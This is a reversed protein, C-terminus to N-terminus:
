PPFTLTSPEAVYVGSVLLGLGVVVLLLGRGWRSARGHRPAPTPVYPESPLRDGPPGNADQPHQPEMREM